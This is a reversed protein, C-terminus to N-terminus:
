EKKWKAHHWTVTTKGCQTCVLRQHLKDKVEFDHYELKVLTYCHQCWGMVTHYKKM